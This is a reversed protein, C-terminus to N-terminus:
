KGGLKKKLMKNENRLKELEYEIKKKRENRMDIIESIYDIMEEKEMSRLFEKTLEHM